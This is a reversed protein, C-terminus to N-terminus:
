ILKIRLDKTICVGFRVKYKEFMIEVLKERCSNTNFSPEQLNRSQLHSMRFMALYDCIVCVALLM